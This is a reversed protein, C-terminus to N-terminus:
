AMEGRIEGIADGLKSPSDPKALIAYPAVSDNTARIATKYPIFVVDDFSATPSFPVKAFPEFIGRVQFSEGRFTFSRGLPVPENFLSYAAQQGIVAFHSEEDKSSWFDGYALNQNILQPMDSGTAVVKSSSIITKDDVTLTGSVLMLPAHLRVDQAHGVLDIDKNTLNVASSMGFIVDSRGLNSPSDDQGDDPRVIILDKGFHALSG